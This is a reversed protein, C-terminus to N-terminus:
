IKQRPIAIWLSECTALETGSADKIVASLLLRKGKIEKIRGVGLVVDPTAVPKLYKINMSATVTNMSFVPSDRDTNMNRQILIGLVEDILVAVLGGHAIHPYGDVGQSLAFLVSVENIVSRGPAEKYFCICAPIGSSSNITRGFFRDHPNANEPDRAPPIFTITNPASLLTHCWPLATLESVSQPLGDFAAAGKSQESM